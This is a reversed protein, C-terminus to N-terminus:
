VAFCKVVPVGLMLLVSAFLFASARDKICEAPVSITNSYASTLYFPPANTIRNRYRKLEYRKYM